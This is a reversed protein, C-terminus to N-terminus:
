DDDVVSRRMFRMPHPYARFPATEIFGMAKWFRLADQRSPLVDLVATVYGATRAHDLLSSALMQGIGAGQKHPVVYVRKLECTEDAFPAIEGMAVVDAGATAILVEGRPPTASGPFTRMERRLFAEADTAGLGFADWADPLLVYARLLDRAAELLDERESLRSLYV